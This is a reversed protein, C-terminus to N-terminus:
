VDYVNSESLSDFENCAIHIAANSKATNNFIEPEKFKNMMPGIKVLVSKM